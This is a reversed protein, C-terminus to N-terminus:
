GASFAGFMMAFMAKFIDEGTTDSAYKFTFSAGAYFLVANTANQM